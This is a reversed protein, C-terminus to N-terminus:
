VFRRIGSVAYFNSTDLVLDVDFYPTLTKALTMATPLPMFLQTTNTLCLENVSVRSQPCCIMLRGESVLLHHMQRILSGRNEFFQFSNCLIAYDFEQGSIEMIDECCLEICPDVIKKRAQALMQASFDVGLLHSPKHALLPQFLVGTGCGADLIRAGQPMGCLSILTELREQPYTTYRQDWEGAMQNFFTILSHKDM